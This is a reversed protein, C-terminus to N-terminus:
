NTLKTVAVHDEHILQNIREVFLNADLSDEVIGLQDAITFIKQIDTLNAKMITLTHTTFRKNCLKRFMLMDSAKVTDKQHELFTLTAEQETYGKIM